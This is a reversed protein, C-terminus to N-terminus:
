DQPTGGRLLVSDEQGGMVDTEDEELRKRVISVLKDMFVASELNAVTEREITDMREHLVKVLQEFTAVKHILTKLDINNM